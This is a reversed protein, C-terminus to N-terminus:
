AGSIDILPELRPPTYRDSKMVKGDARLVPKGDGGLKSLNSRHVEDFIDGFRTLGHAVATGIVVYALDALADAIAVLDNEAVAEVYERFEELILECRLEQVVWPLTIATDPAAQGNARHFETVKAFADKM